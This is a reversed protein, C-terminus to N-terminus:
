RHEREDEEDDDDAEEVREEFVLGDGLEREPEDHLYAVSAERIVIRGVTGHREELEEVRDADHGIERLKQPKQRWSSRAGSQKGHRILLGTSALRM